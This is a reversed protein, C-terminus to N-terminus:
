DIVKPIIVQLNKYLNSIQRLLFPEFEEYEEPIGSDGGGVVPREDNESNWIELGLFKILCNTTGTTELTLLQFNDETNAESIKWNISEVAEVAQQFTDFM